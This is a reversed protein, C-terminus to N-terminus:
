VPSRGNTPTEKSAVPPTSGEAEGTLEEDTYTKTRGCDCAFSWGDDTVKWAQWDHVHSKYNAFMFEATDDSYSM